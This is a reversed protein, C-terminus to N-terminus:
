NAAKCCPRSTSGSCYVCLALISLDARVEALTEELRHCRDALAAALSYTYKRRSVRSYLLLPHHQRRRLVMSQVSEEAMRRLEYVGAKAGAHIMSFEGSVQYCALPHDPALDRAEAVIDLYPLTPKVMIVDAGESADRVIARRALGRATPPLQLVGTALRRRLSWLMEVLEFPSLLTLRRIRNQLKMQLKMQVPVASVPLSRLPQKRVQRATRWPTVKNGFGADVLGKKIARVRGDIMDSPAVCHAGAKRLQSGGRCPTRGFAPQQDHTPTCSAATATRPTSACVCTRLLTSRLSRRACCRSEGPVCPRGADDALTGQRGQSGQAARWLSSPASSRRSSRPLFGEFSTSAWRCQGPM